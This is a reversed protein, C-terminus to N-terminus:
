VRADRTSKRKRIASIRELNRSSYFNGTQAVLVSIERQIDYDHDVILDNEMSM